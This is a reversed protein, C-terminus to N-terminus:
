WGCGDAGTGLNDVSFGYATGLLSRASELATTAATIDGGELVPAEGLYGHLEALQADTIQAHPNFQLALAFGKLESWHKAHDYFHYEATGIAAM